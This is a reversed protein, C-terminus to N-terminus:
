MKRKPNGFDDILVHYALFCNRRVQLDSDEQADHEHKHCALRSVLTATGM